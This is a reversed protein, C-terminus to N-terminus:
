TSVESCDRPGTLPPDGRGLEGLREDPRRDEGPATDHFRGDSRPGESRPADSLRLERLAAELREWEELAGPLGFRVSPVSAFYRTLIGVRALAEHIALADEM